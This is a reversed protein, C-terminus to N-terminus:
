NNWSQKWIACPWMGGWIVCTRLAVQRKAMVLSKLPTREMAIPSVIYWNVFGTKHRWNWSVKTVCKEVCWNLTAVLPPQSITIWPMMHVKFKWKSQTTRWNSTAFVKLEIDLLTMNWFSRAVHPSMMCSM